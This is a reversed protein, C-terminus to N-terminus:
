KNNDIKDSFSKLTKMKSLLSGDAKKGGADYNDILFGRNRADSV